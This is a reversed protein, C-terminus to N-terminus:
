VDLVLNQWPLRISEVGIQVGGAFATDKAGKQLDTDAKRRKESVKAMRRITSPITNIAAANLAEAV